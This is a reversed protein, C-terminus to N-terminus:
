FVCKLTWKISEREYINLDELSVRVMVNESYLIIENRM